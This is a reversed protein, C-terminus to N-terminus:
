ILELLITCLYLDSPLLTLLVSDLVVMTVRYTFESVLKKHSNFMQCGQSPSCETFYTDIDFEENLDAPAKYDGGYCHFAVAEVFPRM